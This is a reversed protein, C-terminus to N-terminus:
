IHYRCMHRLAHMRAHLCVQMALRKLIAQEQVAKIDDVALGVLLNTVLIAMLVLFIVFLTYSIASYYLTEKHVDNQNYFINEFEFEGIM